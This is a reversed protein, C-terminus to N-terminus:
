SKCRNESNLGTLMVVRGSKRGPLHLIETIGMLLLYTEQLPVSACVTNCKLHLQLTGEGVPATHIQHFTNGFFTFAFPLRSTAFEGDGNWDDFVSPKPVHRISFMARGGPVVQM